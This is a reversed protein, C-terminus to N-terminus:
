SDTDTTGLGKTGPGGKTSFM